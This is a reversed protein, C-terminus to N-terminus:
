CDTNCDTNCETNRVSSIHKCGHGSMGHKELGEDVTGPVAQSQDM